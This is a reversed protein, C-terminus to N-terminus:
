WVSVRRDLAVRHRTPIDPGRDRASTRKRWHRKSRLAAGPKEAVGKGSAGHEGAAIEGGDPFVRPVCANRRRHFVGM